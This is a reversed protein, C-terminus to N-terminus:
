RANPIHIFARGCIGKVCQAVPLVGGSARGGSRFSPCPDSLSNRKIAIIASFILVLPILNGGLDPFFSLNLTCFHYNPFNVFFDVIKICLLWNGEGVNYGELKLAGPDWIQDLDCPLSAKGYSPPKLNLAKVNLIPYCFSWHIATEAFFRPKRRFTLTYNWM